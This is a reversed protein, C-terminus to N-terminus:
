KDIKEYGLRFMQSFSSHNPYYWSTATDIPVVYFEVAKNDARLTVVSPWDYIKPGIFYGKYNNIGSTGQIPKCLSIDVNELEKPAVMFPEDDYGYLSNFMSVTKYHGFWDYYPKQFCIIPAHSRMAMDVFHTKQPNEKYLEITERTYYFAKYCQYDVAFVHTIIFVSFVITLSVSVSRKVRPFLCNLAACIGILCAIIGLAGTRPGLPFVIMFGVGSFGLALLTIFLPNLMRKQKSLILSGIIWIICFTLLPLGMFLLISVRTSFYFWIPGGFRPYMLYFIGPLFALTYSIQYSIRFKKFLIILVVSAVSLGGAFAEHWFGVFLCLLFTFWSFSNFFKLWRYVIILALGTSWIYNLQFDVLYLQDIWPYFILFSSIYLTYIELRKEFEGIKAGTYIIVFVALISIFQPIWRPWPSFLIMFVNAFRANDGQYRSVISRFTPTWLDNSLGNIYDKFPLMYGIDDSIAPFFFLGIGIGLSILISIIISVYRRDM